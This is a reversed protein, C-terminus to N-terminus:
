RNRMNGMTGKMTITSGATIDGHLSRSNWAISKERTCAFIRRASMRSRKRKKKKASNFGKKEECHRWTILRNRSVILIQGRHWRSYSYTSWGTKLSFKPRLREARTYWGHSLCEPTLKMLEDGLTDAYWGDDVIIRRSRIYRAIYTYHFFAFKKKEFFLRIRASM